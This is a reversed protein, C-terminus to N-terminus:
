LRVESRVQNTGSLSRHIGVLLILTIAGYLFGGLVDSPWHAGLYVRSLGVLVILLLSSVRILAVPMKRSVIAPALYYLLGFLVIASFAHGSPFGLGGFDSWVVVLDDAPRPRDVVLKLVPNIGLSLVAGLVVSAEARRNSKLLWLFLALALGILVFNQGIFTAGQMTAAWPGLTASQVARVLFVDGVFHEQFVADASLIIAMVSATPLIIRVPISVM